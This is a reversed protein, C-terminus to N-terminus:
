TLERMKFSDQLLLLMMTSERQKLSDLLGTEISYLVGMPHLMSNVEVDDEMLTDCREKELCNSHMCISSVLALHSAYLRPPMSVSMSSRPHRYSQKQAEQLTLTLWTLRRHAPTSLSLMDLGFRVEDEGPDLENRTVSNTKPVVVKENEEVDLSSDQSISSRVHEDFNVDRSVV